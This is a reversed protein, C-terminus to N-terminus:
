FGNILHTSDNAQLFTNLNRGHVHELCIKSQNLPVNVHDDGHTWHTIDKSRSQSHEWRKDVVASNIPERLPRFFCQKTDSFPLDKELANLKILEKIGAHLHETIHM